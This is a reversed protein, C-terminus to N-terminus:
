PPYLFWGPGTKIGFTFLSKSLSTIGFLVTAKIIDQVEPTNNWRRNTSSFSTCTYHWLTCIQHCSLSQSGQAWVALRHGGASGSSSQDLTGLSKFLPLNITMDAASKYRQGWHFSFKLSKQEICCSIKVLHKWQPSYYNECKYLNKEHPHPDKKYVDFLHCYLARRTKQIWGHNVRSTSWQAHM